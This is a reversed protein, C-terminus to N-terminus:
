SKEGTETGGFDVGRGVREREGMGLGMGRIHHIEAPTGSYGLKYCLICGIDAVKSLYEKDKKRM